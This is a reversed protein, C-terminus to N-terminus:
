VDNEKATPAAASHQTSAPQALGAARCRALWLAVDRTLAFRGRRNEIDFLPVPVRGRSVAQRMAAATPFGLARYLAAGGLMPGHREHLGQEIEQALKDESDIEV